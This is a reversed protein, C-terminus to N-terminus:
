PKLIHVINMQSLVPVLPPCHVRYRVDPKMFAPFRKVLQAVIPKELLVRSCPTIKGFVSTTEVSITRIINLVCL